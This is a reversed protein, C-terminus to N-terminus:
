SSSPPVWGAERALAVAQLQSNVGLRRLVGRIQSRVTTVAVFAEEAVQEATKGALLGALVAAERDTLSAFPALRAKDASRSARLADLLNEREGARMAAQGELVREIVDVVDDFAQSKAVVGVAGAELTEALAVRDTVGTLVLVVAGTERLAPILPTSPGLEKGLELDLLVLDPKRERVTAVIADVADVVVVDAQHGRGRLALALTQALLEHDDVILISPEATGSV